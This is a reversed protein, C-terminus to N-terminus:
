ETTGWLTGKSAYILGAIAAVSAATIGTGWLLKSKTSMPKELEVKEKSQKSRNKDATTIFTHLKEVDSKLEHCETESIGSYPNIPKFKDRITKIQALTKSKEIDLHERTNKEITDLRVFVNERTSAREFPITGPVGVAGRYIGVLKDFDNSSIEKLESAATIAISFKKQRQLEKEERARKEKEIKSEVPMEKAGAFCISFQPLAASLLLSLLLKSIIKKM